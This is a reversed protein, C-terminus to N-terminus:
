EKRIVSEENTWRLSVVAKEGAGVEGEILWADRGDLPFARQYEM